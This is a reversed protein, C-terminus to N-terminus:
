TDGRSIAFALAAISASALAGAVGMWAIVKAPGYAHPHDSAYGWENIAAGAFVVAAIVTAGM